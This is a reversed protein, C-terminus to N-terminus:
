LYVRSQRPRPGARHRFGPTAVPINYSLVVLNSNVAAGTIYLPKWAAGDVFTRKIAEGYKEGLLEESQNTLHAGDKRYYDALIESVVLAISARITLPPRFNRWRSRHPRQRPRRAFCTSTYNNMQDTFLMVSERQGTIARLDDDYDNRWQVLDAEYDAASAGLISDTEGHTVTVARVVDRVGM